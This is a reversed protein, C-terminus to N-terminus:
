ISPNIPFLNNEKYIDLELEPSIVCMLSESLQFKVTEFENDMALMIQLVAEAKQRENANGNILDYLRNLVKITDSRTLTFSKVELPLINNAQAKAKGGAEDKVKVKPHYYEKYSYAGIFNM